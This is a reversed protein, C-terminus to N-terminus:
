DGNCLLGYGILPEVLRYDNGLYSQVAYQFALERQHPNLEAVKIEKHFNGGGRPAVTRLLQMMPSDPRTHDPIGPLFRRVVQTMYLASRAGEEPTIFPIDDSVSYRKKLAFVREGVAIAKYDFADAILSIRAELSTDDPPLKALQSALERAEKVSLSLVLPTGETVVAVRYARCAVTFASSFEELEAPSLTVPPQAAAAPFHICSAVLATLITRRNVSPSM